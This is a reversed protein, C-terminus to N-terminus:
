GLPSGEVWGASGDAYREQKWIPVSRKLEEMAWRCADFAPGRHPAAVAVAVSVESIPVEGLRHVIACAAVAFRRPADRELAELAALAMPEYAEYALRTVRRGDHHDRTTGLFLAVAGCDPRAVSAVLASV